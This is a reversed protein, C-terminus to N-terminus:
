RDLEAHKTRAIYLGLADRAFVKQAEESATYEHTGPTAEIAQGIRRDGLM